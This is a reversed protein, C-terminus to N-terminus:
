EDARSTKQHWFGKKRAFLWRIVTFVMAVTAGAVFLLGLRSRVLHHVVEIPLVLTSVLFARLLRAKASSREDAPWHREQWDIGGAVLWALGLFSCGYWLLHCIKISHGHFTATSSQLWAVRLVLWSHSHTCSDLLLHTWVGIALSLVIAPIIRPTLHCMPALSNRYPNAVIRLAFPALAYFLGLMMLGITIGFATGAVLTHALENLRNGSFLYSVDPSISGAVLAPFILYRPCYRRLPLVAAPHALPFPM